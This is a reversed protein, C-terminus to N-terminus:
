ASHVSHIAGFGVVQQMVDAFEGMSREMEIIKECMNLIIELTTKSGIAEPRSYPNSYSFSKRIQEM